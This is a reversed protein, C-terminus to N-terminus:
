LSNYMRYNIGPCDLILQQVEPKKVSEIITDAVYDASLKPGPWQKGMDTDIVGPLVNLIRNKGDLMIDNALKNLNQKSQIYEKVNAREVQTPDILAAKSSINIIILDKFKAYVEKLLQQQGTPHYANNIFIDVDVLQDLIKSRDEPIGIDYGLSLSFGKLTHGRSSLKEFLSCGLGRTHGTVAIIM